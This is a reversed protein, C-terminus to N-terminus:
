KGESYLEEAAENRTEDKPALELTERDYYIFPTRQISDISENRPDLPDWSVRSAGLITGTAFALDVQSIQYDA